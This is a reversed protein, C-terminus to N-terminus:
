NSIPVKFFGKVVREHNRIESGSSSVKQQITIDIYGYIESDSMTPLDKLVLKASKIQFTQRFQLRLPMYVSEVRFHGNTIALYFKLLSPNLEDVEGFRLSLSDKYRHAYAYTIRISSDLSINATHFFYSTDEPDAESNNILNYLGSDTKYIKAQYDWYKTFTLTDQFSPDIIIPFLESNQVKIFVEKSQSHGAIFQGLFIITAIIRM